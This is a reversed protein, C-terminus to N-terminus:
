AALVVSFTATAATSAGSVLAGAAGLAGFAAAVLIAGRLLSRLGGPLSQRVEQRSGEEHGPGQDAYRHGHDGARRSSNRDRRYRRRKREHHTGKRRRSACDCSNISQPPTLAM